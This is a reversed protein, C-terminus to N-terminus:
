IPFMFSVRTLHAADPYLKAEETENARVRLWAAGSEITMVGGPIEHAARRALDLGNGGGGDSSVGPRLAEHLATLDDPLDGFTARITAPIGDGADGVAIFTRHQNPMRQVMYYGSIPGGSLRRSHALVNEALEYVTAAIRRLTRAGGPVNDGGSAATLVHPLREGLDLIGATDNFRRVEILTTTQQAQFPRKPPSPRFHPFLDYFGIRWLFMCLFSPAPPELRIEPFGMREVVELVLCLNVIETPVVYRVDRLSLVLPLDRPQSAIIQLAEHARGLRGRLSLGMM